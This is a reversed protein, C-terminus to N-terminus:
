NTLPPKCLKENLVATKHTQTSQEWTLFVVANLLPGESSVKQNLPLISEANLSIGNASYNEM